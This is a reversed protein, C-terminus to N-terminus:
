NLLIVLKLNNTREQLQSFFLLIMKLPFIQRGDEIEVDDQNKATAYTNERILM